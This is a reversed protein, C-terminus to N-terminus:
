RTDVHSVHLVDDYDIDNITRSFEKDEIKYRWDNYIDINDSGVSYEKKSDFFINGDWREGISNPFVMKIFRLNDETRTAYEQNM